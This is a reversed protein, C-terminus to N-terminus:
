PPPPPPPLAGKLPFFFVGWVCVPPRRKKLPKGPGRKQHPGKQSGWTKKGPNKGGPKKPSFGTKGGRPTFTSVGEGRGWFARLGRPEPPRPFRSPAGWYAFGRKGRANPPNM